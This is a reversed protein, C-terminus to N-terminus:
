TIELDGDVKWLERIETCFAKYSPAAKLIEPTHQWVVPGRHSFYRKGMELRHRSIGFNNSQSQRTVCNSTDQVHEFMDQVRAPVLQNHVKYMMDATHQKCRMHLYPMNLTQHVFDTPTLREVQLVNKLVMNQLKQLTQSDQQRVCDWVFDCYDFIPLILTKYLM